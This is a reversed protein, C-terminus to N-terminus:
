AACPLSTGDRHKPAPPGRRRLAFGTLLIAGSVLALTGPEPVTAPPDILYVLAQNAQGDVPTLEFLSFNSPVTWGSQADALYGAAVSQLTPDDPTFTAASGYETEWIALQVAAPNSGNSILAGIDAIKSDGTISSSGALNPDAAPDAGLNFTGTEALWASIDICYGTMVPSGYLTILGAGGYEKFIGLSPDSLTVNSGTLGYSGYSYTGAYAATVGAGGLALGALLPAILIRNM